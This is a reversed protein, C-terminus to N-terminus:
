PSFPPHCASSWLVAVEGLMGRFLISACFQLAQQQVSQLWFLGTAQLQTRGQGYLSDFRVCQKGLAHVTGPPRKGILMRSLM